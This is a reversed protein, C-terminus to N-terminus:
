TRRVLAPDTNSPHGIVRSPDGRYDKEPIRIPEGGFHVPIQMAGSDEVVVSAHLVTSGVEKAQQPVETILEQQEVWPLTIAEEAGPVTTIMPNTPEINGVTM